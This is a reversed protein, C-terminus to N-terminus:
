PEKGFLNNLVLTILFTIVVGGIFIALAIIRRKWVALRPSGGPPLLELVPFLWIYTMNMAYFLCVFFVLGLLGVIVIGLLNNPLFSSWNIHMWLLYFIMVILGFVLSSIFPNLSIRRGKKIQQTVAERLGQNLIRVSGEVAVSVAPALKSFIVTVVAETSSISGAVIKLETVNRLELSKIEEEFESVSSYRDEDQQSKVVFELPPETGGREKLLKLASIAVGAIDSTTGRWRSVHARKISLM